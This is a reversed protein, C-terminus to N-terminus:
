GAPHGAFSAEKEFNSLRNQLTVAYQPEIDDPPTPRTRVADDVSLGASPAGNPGACGLSGYSSVAMVKLRTNSTATAVTMIPPTAVPALAAVSI